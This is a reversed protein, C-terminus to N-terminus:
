EYPTKQLESCVDGIKDTGALCTDENDYIDFTYPPTQKCMDDYFTKKNTQNGYNFERADAYELKIESSSFITKFADNM